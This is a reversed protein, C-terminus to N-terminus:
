SIVKVTAFGGGEAQLNTVQGQYMRAILLQVKGEYFYCRLDYKFSGNPTSVIPAPCYEQAIAGAESVKNFASQSISGGRFALKSGFSEKPKFFLNKRKGWMAASSNQDLSWSKLLVKDFLSLDAQDLIGSDRFGDSQWDILRQKNALLEFQAPNPSVVVAQSEHWNKLVMATPDKLYFDTNRNYVLDPKNSQNLQALDLIECEIQQQQAMAQVILFEVFLRQQEPKDDVIFIRKLKSESNKHAAFESQIMPFVQAAMGDRDPKRKLFDYLECGMAYFAANTNAEIIKPTGASDIHFDLSSFIGASHVKAFDQSTLAPKPQNLIWQHYKPNLVLRNLAECTESILSYQQLNIEIESHNILQPSVLGSFQALDRTQLSPYKNWLFRAFDKAISM